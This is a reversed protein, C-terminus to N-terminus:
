GAQLAVVKRQGGGVLSNIRDAWLVLATRVENQYSARNYVGAVGRKHGGRHNLIEEVIHPMVGANAMGTAATRRLDHLVFGTVGCRRDLFRKARDFNTFGREAREGFLKDRGDIRPISAIIELAADPLPLKHSVRNKSRSAPLTWVGDDGIEAWELGGIESKRAGTLILLKVIKGFADNGCAQWVSILEPDSLVRERPGAEVPKRTGVVPNASVLGQQMAWQFAASLASRATRATGAGRERLITVLCAAVDRQSVQDIPMNHLPRFHPGTLYREIEKFTRSRVEARKMPLYEDIIAKMSVRDKARREAKEAQPDEGLAVKALVERARERAQTASLVGGNGLLVRRTGGARRYQAIWSRKVGGAGQRLRYGFGPMDDDFRIVDTKGEPLALTSVTKSNLIM